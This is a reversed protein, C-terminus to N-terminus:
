QDSQGQQKQSAGQKQKCSPPYHACPWWVESFYVVWSGKNFINKKPHSSTKKKTM